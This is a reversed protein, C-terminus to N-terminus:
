KPGSVAMGPRVYRFVVFLVVATLWVLAAGLMFKGVPQGDIYHKSIEDWTSLLGLAAFTQLVAFAILMYRGM